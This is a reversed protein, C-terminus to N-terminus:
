TAGRTTRIPNFEFVRSEEERGIIEIAHAEAEAEITLAQAKAKALTTIEM